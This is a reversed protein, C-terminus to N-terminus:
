VKWVKPKSGHYDFIGRVVYIDKADEKGTKEFAVRWRGRGPGSDLQPLDVYTFNGIKKRSVRGAQIDQIIEEVKNKAPIPLLALQTDALEDTKVINIVTGSPATPTPATTIGPEPTPKEVKHTAVRSPSFELPTSFQPINKEFAVVSISDIVQVGADARSAGGSSLAIYPIGSQKFADTYSAFGLTGLREAQREIIFRHLVKGIRPSSLLNNLTDEPNENNDSAVKGLIARRGKEDLFANLTDEHWNPPKLKHNFKNFINLQRQTFAFGVFKAGTDFDVASISARIYKSFDDNKGMLRKIKIFLNEMEKPSFTLYDAFDEITTNLYAYTNVDFKLTLLANRLDQKYPVDYDGRVIRRFTVEDVRLGELVQDRLTKKQPGSLTKIVDAYQQHATSPRDLCLARLLDDDLQQEATLPRLASIVPGGGRTTREFRPKWSKADGPVVMFDTKIGLSDKVYRAGDEVYSPYLYYRDDDARMAIFQNNRSDIFSPAGLSRSLRYHHTQAFAEVDFLADIPDPLRYEAVNVWAPDLPRISTTAVKIGTVRAGARKGLLGPIRRGLTQARRIGGVVARHLLRQVTKAMLLEVLFDAIEVGYVFANVASEWAIQANSRSRHDAHALQFGLQASYLFVQLDGTVPSVTYRNASRTDSFIRALEQTDLTAMRQTFYTRWQPQAKLGDLEGLGNVLERFPANDPADPTYLVCVGGPKTHKRQIILVGNIVQGGRGGELGSGMVLLHAVIDHTGVQPRTAPDPFHTIAHIWDFGSGPTKFIFLDSVAPNLRSELAEKRMRATNARQWATALAQGEGSQSFASRLYDDYKKGIDAEHALARLEANDLRGVRTGSRDFLGATATIARHAEHLSWPDVNRRAYSALTRLDVVARTKWKGKTLVREKLFLPIDIGPDESIYVTDAQEDKYGTVEVDASSTVRLRVLSEYPALDVNAYEPKQRKLVRSVENESFSTLSLVQELLPKLTDHSALMAAEYQRYQAQDQPCAAKLWDPEHPKVLLLNRAALATSADLQPALYAVCDLEGTLPLTPKRLLARTNFYQRVRLSRVSDAIVDAEIMPPDDALVLAGSLREHAAAPLSAALLKGASENERLRQEVAENLRRLNEYEEFGEGPTYLLVSGTPPKVATTSMIFASAFESGDALTLRYVGPRQQPLLAMERAEASPYKLVADALTRAADSLTGDVTRLALQHALVQRRVAILREETNPQAGKKARWFENLKVSFAIELVSALTAVPTTASLRKDAQLTQAERYFTGTEETLYTDADPMRLRNLLSGLPESSLLQPEGQETERYRTYFIRNPNIPRDLEPFLSALQIQYVTGLSPQQQLLDDTQANLSGLERVLHAQQEDLSQKAPPEVPLTVPQLPSPTLDPDDNQPTQPSMHM